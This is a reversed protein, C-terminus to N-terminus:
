AGQNLLPPVSSQSTPEMELSKTFFQWDDKYQEMESIPEHLRILPRLHMWGKFKEHVICSPIVYCSPEAYAGVLRKSDFPHLDVFVFVLRESNLGTRVFDQLVSLDTESLEQGAARVEDLRASDSLGSSQSLQDILCQLRDQHGFWLKFLRRCPWAQAIMERALEKIEIQLDSRLGTVKAKDLLSLFWFFKYTTDTNRFIQGIAGTAGPYPEFPLKDVTINPLLDFPSKM